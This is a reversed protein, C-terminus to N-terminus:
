PTVKELMMACGAQGDPQFTMVRYEVGKVVVRDGARARFGNLDKRHMALRPQTSQMMAGDLMVVDKYEADFIGLTEFSAQGVPTYVIPTSFTDRCVEMVGDTLDDWSM